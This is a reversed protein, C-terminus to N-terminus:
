VRDQEPMLAVRYRDDASVALPKGLTSLDALSLSAQVDKRWDFLSLVVVSLDASSSSEDRCRHKINRLGIRDLDLNCLYLAAM